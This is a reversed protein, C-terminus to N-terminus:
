VSWFLFFLALRRILRAALPMPGEGRSLSVSYFYGSALFFFPVAVRVFQNLLEGFLRVDPGFAPGTFPDTHVCIVAWAAFVRFADISHNRSAATMTQLIGASM